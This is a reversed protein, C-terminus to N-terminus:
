ARPPIGAMRIAALEFHGVLPDALDDPADMVDALADVDNAMAATHSGITDDSWDAMDGVLRLLRFATAVLTRELLEIRMEARELREAIDSPEPM